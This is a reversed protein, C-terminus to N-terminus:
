IGVLSIKSIDITNPLNASTSPFIGGFREGEKRRRLWFLFFTFLVFALWPGREKKREIKIENEEEDASMDKLAVLM